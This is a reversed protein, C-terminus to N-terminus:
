KDRQSKSQIIASNPKILNLLSREPKGRMAAAGVPRGMNGPHQSTGDDPRADGSAEASQRKQYSVGPRVEGPQQKSPGRRPPSAGDQHEPSKSFLVINKVIQAEALAPGTVHGDLDREEGDAGPATICGASDM